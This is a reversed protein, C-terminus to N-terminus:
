HLVDGLRSWRISALRAFSFLPTNTDWSWHIVLAKGRLLDDDVCGWFRSDYSGDRNDGMMFYHDPPVTIPGYNDRPGAQKPLIVPDTWTGHEEAMPQGNVFVKKDRIEVVDGGIGIVRKIYDTSPDEPYRFVVIDNRDPSSVPILVKGTFPNHIGYIFKNVLLHDGILLTPIMSGSPIKYAQIVFTRISLVLLVVICFFEINERLKSKTSALDAPSTV